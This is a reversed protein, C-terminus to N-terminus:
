SFLYSPHYLPGLTPLHLELLAVTASCVGTQVRKMLTFDVCLDPGQTLRDIAGRLQNCLFTNGMDTLLNPSVILKFSKRRLKFWERCSAAPISPPFLQNTM